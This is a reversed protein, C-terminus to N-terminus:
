VNFKSIKKNISGLLTIIQGIAFLFISVLLSFFWIIIMISFNFEKVVCVDQYYSTAGCTAFLNGMFIGLFFCIVFMGIAFWQYFNFRYKKVEKELSNVKPFEKKTKSIEEFFDM